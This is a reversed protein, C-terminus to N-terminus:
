GRGMEERKKSVYIYSFMRVINTAGDTESALRTAAEAAEPPLTGMLYVVGNESVVKIQTADIDNSAILKAKIKTTLWTDSMRTLMSSPSSITLLNYVTQVGSIRHVIDGAREKQSATPVQGTLLVENNLVAISVNSNVFDTSKVHIAQNAQMAILQDNVSQQIQHHNYIAQAGTTAVNM